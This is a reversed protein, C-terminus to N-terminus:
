IVSIKNVKKIVLQLFPTQLVSIHGDAMVEAYSQQPQATMEGSIKRLV